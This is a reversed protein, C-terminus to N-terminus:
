PVKETKAKQQKTTATSEKKVDQAARYESGYGIYFAMIDGKHNQNIDLYAM